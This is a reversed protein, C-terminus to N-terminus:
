FPRNRGLLGVSKAVEETCAIYNTFRKLSDNSYIHEAQRFPTNEDTSFYLYGKGRLQREVLSGVDKGGLDTNWVEFLLTPQDAILEGMGEIVEPEHSEVDIKVLGLKSVAHEYAFTLLRKTQVTLQRAPTKNDYLNSNVTGGYSVDLAVPEWMSATGDFNSAAFPELCIDFGNLEVNRKLKEFIRPVPEFAFVKSKPNVAYPLLCYVGTNAGIDFIVNHYRCLASWARVSYREWGNGLGEWFIRSEIIRGTGGNIMRFRAGEIEAEVTGEFFLKEQMAPPPVIGLYRAANFISPKCPITEYLSRLFRKSVM